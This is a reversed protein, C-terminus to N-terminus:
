VLAAHCEALGRRLAVWVPRIVRGFEPGYEANDVANFGLRSKYTPHYRHGDVVLSELDDYAAGAAPRGAQRWHWRAASDNAITHLLETAFGKRRVPDTTLACGVEELFRRPSTAEQPPRGPLVRVVAAPDLRVRDFSFRRRLRWCYAVRDGRVGGADVAGEYVLSEVLQCMVRRRVEPLDAPTV